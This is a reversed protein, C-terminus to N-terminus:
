ASPRPSLPSSLSQTLLRALPGDTNDRAPALDPVNDLARPALYYCTLPRTSVVHTNM